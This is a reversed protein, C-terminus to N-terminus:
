HEGSARRLEALAKDVQRQLRWRPLARALVAVLVYIAAAPPVLAFGVNGFGVPLGAALVLVAPVDVGRLLFPPDARPYNVEAGTSANFLGVVRDGKVLLAVRHGRRAPVVRTHIIWKSERGGTERLWLERRERAPYREWLRQPVNVFRQTEVVTGDVGIIPQM